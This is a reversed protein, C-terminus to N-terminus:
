TIGPIGRQLIGAILEALRNKIYFFTSNTTGGVGCRQAYPNTQDDIVLFGTPSDLIDTFLLDVHAFHGQHGFVTGKHDVTGLTDNHGLQVTGGTHKEVVIFALSVGGALQEIGGPHNRVTPGPQVEFEIGLVLHEDPDVTAALQRRRDQQTRQAIGGVFHQLHEELGVLNCHFVANVAHLQHRLTQTTFGRGEIDQRVTFDHHLTATTNSRAVNALQFLGIDLVQFNRGFVQLALVQGFGDDILVGALDQHLTVGLQCRFRQLLQLLASNGIEFGQVGVVQVVAREHGVGQTSVRGPSGQLCQDLDVAHHTRALRGGLFRRFVQELVQEEGVLTVVQGTHPTHLEVTTETAFVFGTGTDEIVTAVEAGTGILFALLVKGLHTFFGGVDDLHQAGQDVDAVTVTHHIIDIVQAVTTHTGHTFHGFVLETHTQHTHLTRDLLTQAQCFGFAQHGLVQDVGLRHRSGHFLEKARGLQGLKHILVVRQGLDRVLTTHGRQAGTTQGTLTGAKLNTVNVRGM